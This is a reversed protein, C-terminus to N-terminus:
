AVQPVPSGGLVVLFFFPNTVINKEEADWVVGRILAHLNVVPFPFIVEVKDVIETPWSPYPGVTNPAIM